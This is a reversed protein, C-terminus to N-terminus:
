QGYRGWVNSAAEKHDMEKLSKRGDSTVPTASISKSPKHSKISNLERQSEQYAKYLSDMERMLLPLVHKQHHDFAASKIAYESAQKENSIGFARAESEKRLEAISLNYQDLMAKTADDSDKPIEM